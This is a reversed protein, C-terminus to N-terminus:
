EAENEEVLYGNNWLQKLKLGNLYVHEIGNGHRKDNKFEGLYKNGNAFYLIGNGDFYGNKFEGEYTRIISKVNNFYYVGLGHQMDESYEGEYVDGNGFYYKGYGHKKKNELQGVYKDGSKAFCYTGYGTLDDDKL